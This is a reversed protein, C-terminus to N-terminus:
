PRPYGRDFLVVRAGGTILQLPKTADTFPSVGRRGRPPRARYRRVSRSSGHAPCVVSGTVSNYRWLLLGRHWDIKDDVHVTYDVMPAAQNGQNDFPRSEDGCDRGSQGRPVHCGAPRHRVQHCGDLQGGSTLGVEHALGAGEQHPVGARLSPAWVASDNMIPSRTYVSM